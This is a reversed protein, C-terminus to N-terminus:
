RKARPKRRPPKRRPLARQQQPARQQQRGAMTTPGPDPPPPPPPPPSPPPPPPPPLPDPDPPEPPPDPVGIAGWTRHSGLFSLSVSGGGRPQYTLWVRDYHNPGHAIDKIITNGNPNLNAQAIRFTQEGGPGTENHDPFWTVHKATCVIENVVQGGPQRQSRIGFAFRWSRAIGVSREAITKASPIANPLTIVCDASAVSSGTSGVDIDGVPYPLPDDVRWYDWGEPM